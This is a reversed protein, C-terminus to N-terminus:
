KLAELAEEASMELLAAQELFAIVAQKDEKSLESDVKACMKGFQILMARDEHKKKGLEVVSVEEEEEDRKARPVDIEEEEGSVIGDTIELISVVGNPHERAYQKADEDRDWVDDEYDRRVIAPPEIIAHPPIFGEVGFEKKIEEDEPFILGGRRLQGKANALTRGRPQRMSGIHVVEGDPAKFRLHGRQTKEVIWGAERAVRVWDAVEKAVKVEPDGREDHSRM